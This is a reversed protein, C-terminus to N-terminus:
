FNPHEKGNANVSAKTHSLATIEEEGSFVLCSIVTM